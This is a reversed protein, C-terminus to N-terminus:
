ELLHRLTGSGYSLMSYGKIHSQYSKRVVRDFYDEFVVNCPVGGIDCSGFFGALQTSSYGCANRAAGLGTDGGKHMTYAVVFTLGPHMKAYDYLDKFNSKMQTPVLFHEDYSISTRPDTAGKKLAMTVIGYSQGQRGSAVGM